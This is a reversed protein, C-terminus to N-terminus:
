NAPLLRVGSATFEVERVPGTVSEPAGNRSESEYHRADKESLTVVKVVGEIYAESGTSDTPLFFGYDKFRVRVQVDGQRVVTWCGRRQCVDSLRGRVLVPAASFREPSQVVDALRTAQKLTLGAGFDRGSPLAPSPDSPEAFVSSATVVFVLVLFLSRM